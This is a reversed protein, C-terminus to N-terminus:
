EVVIQPLLALDAISETYLANIAKMIALRNSRLSSDEANVLVKDFFEHLVKYFAEAYERTAEKYNEKNILSIILEKKNLYADWVKKELDEKFLNKDVQGIIGGKAGKLINSTREVVKAAELFYRENSISALVEKREFINAIDPSNSGLVAKKLEIPRVEGMLFEIRDNVFDIIKGKFEGDNIKLKDGYLEIAKQIAEDIKFRFSRDKIIRIIGLANRRIGFPDFSGSIKEIMMGSFGVLNDIKDAIALVAGEDSSPLKDDMGQPLYHEGIAVAAIKEEGSKLAYERGVLGQLSPFEGVMHTVLDAKSLEAARGINKRQSDKLDLKRSIFLSLEKLREIKEFMNGLDKQFILEKLQNAQKSLTHKTDEEFFFLSDKLKAELINEYNKRILKIDRGPGDIVAIFKNILQGKKLVSFVRQYKAMSAILVEKPLALFKKDFGGAFVLPSDVM